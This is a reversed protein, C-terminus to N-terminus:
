PKKICHTDTRRFIDSSVYRNLIQFQKIEKYSFLKRVYNINNNIQQCDRYKQCNVLYSDNPFGHNQLLFYCPNRHYYILIFMKTKKKIRGM